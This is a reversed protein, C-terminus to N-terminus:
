GGGGGREAKPLSNEGYVASPISKVEAVVGSKPLITKELSFHHSLSNMLQLTYLATTHRNHQYLCVNGASYWFCANSTYLSM